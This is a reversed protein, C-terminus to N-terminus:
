SYKSKKLQNKSKKVVVRALYNIILTLLFLLLAVYCLASTHMNSSAEAYENAIVSAMTSAPSFLSFSITPSNGIIMAVAMTEGLARGLGLVLSGVIGSTSARVVAINIMELRTAGLALAAEKNLDPVKSMVERSIATITPIIMLALILSASFIGIGYCPGQFLPIFGFISKLFPGIYDRILPSLVSLGWLGLVISPIAAIMEIAVTIPIKLKPPCFENIYIAAALSIPTALLLAFLSTILTGFLFPLAGYIDQTPDWERNTIFALGFKNYAAISNDILSLLLYIFLMILIVVISKIILTVIRNEIRANHLNNTKKKFFSVLYSLMENKLDNEQVVM